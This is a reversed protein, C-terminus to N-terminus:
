TVCKSLDGSSHGSQPLSAYAEKREDRGGFTSAKGDRKDVRTWRICQKYCYNRESLCTSALVGYFPKIKEICTDISGM